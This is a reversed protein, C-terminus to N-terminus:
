ESAPASPSASPAGSRREQRKQRMQARREEGSLVGDHNADMRAFADAAKREADAIALPFRAEARRAMGPRAAPGMRAGVHRRGMRGANDGRGARAEFEARSLVGDKNADLREFAADRAQAQRAQAYARMEEATVQGDGNADAARLRAVRRQVFDAQSVPQAMRAHRPAAAPTQTQTQTQTQTRIHTQAIATGGIAFTLALAAVGGFTTKM